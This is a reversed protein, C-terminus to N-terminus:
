APACRATWTPRWRLRIWLRVNHTLAAWLAERTVKRLGRLRFQRLGLTAKLQMNSFEAVAGRQRYVAKAAETQMKTVFAAVVPDDQARCVTRGTAIRPCCRPKCACGACDAAAARYAHLTKGRGAKEKGAYPLTKGAPCTYRDRAADYVFARPWFEPTVGRRKLQAAARGESSLLSGFFDIGRAEMALITARTTFGGDAVLQQPVARLNAEVRDVSDALQRYDSGAQTAGIGVIAGAAADTSVQVNYSPVYGGDAHKMVRAEPDTVSVRAQQPDAGRPKAARVNKLEELAQALRATRERAARQRAKAVRQSVEEARPDGMAVVQQRAEELWARVREERRFTDVGAHARVKTGDHMVRELTILGEAGLVGLVQVFLEDLVTKQDVRFDSLTHHNVPEMGTLWQYAPHYGCLREIERASSIGESYAYIWLSVLLRPDTADRGPAGEVAAIAAYLAGLDLRGVFEWVARVPHDEAVLREVDVPRLVLQQRDIARVRAKRAEEM